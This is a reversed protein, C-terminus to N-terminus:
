TPSHLALKRAIVFLSKFRSLATIIDEVMGDSFYEQGPDGSMNQFPLVAISPKDPLSPFDQSARLHAPVNAEAMQYARFGPQM